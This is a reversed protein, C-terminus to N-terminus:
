ARAHLITNGGNSGLDRSTCMTPRPTSVWTTARLRRHKWGPRDRRDLRPPVTARQDRQDDDDRHHEHHPHRLWRELFFRRTCFSALTDQVPALTGLEIASAM